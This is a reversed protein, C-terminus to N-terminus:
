LSEAQTDPRATSAYMKGSSGGDRVGIFERRWNRRCAGSPRAPAMAAHLPVSFCARMRQMMAAARRAASTRRPVPPRARPTAPSTRRPPSARAPRRHAGGLALHRGLAPARDIAASRSRRVPGRFTASSGSTAGAVRQFGSAGASRAAARGRVSRECAFRGPGAAPSRRRCRTRAPSAARASSRSASLEGGLAERM